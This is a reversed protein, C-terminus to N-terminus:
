SAGIEDCIELKAEHQEVKRPCATSSKTTWEKSGFNHSSSLWQLTLSPEKKCFPRKLTHPLGSARRRAFRSLTKNSILDVLLSISRDSKNFTLKNKNKIKKFNKEGFFISITTTEIAFRNANAWGDFEVISHQRTSESATEAFTGQVVAKAHTQHQAHSLTQHVGWLSLWRQALRAHALSQVFATQQRELELQRGAQRRAWKTTLRLASRPMRFFFFHYSNKRQKQNIKKFVFINNNSKTKKQM